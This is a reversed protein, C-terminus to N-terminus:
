NGLRGQRFLKFLELYGAADLSIQLTPGNDNMFDSYGPLTRLEPDTLDHFGMSWHDFLRETAAEELLLTVHHHRPDRFIHREYLECVAPEPGELLQIFQGERYLLLGTIDQSQNHLRAADLLGTLESKSFPISATSLYVIRFM